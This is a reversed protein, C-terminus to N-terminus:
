LKGDKIIIERKNNSTVNTIRAKYNSNIRSALLNHTDLHRITDYLCNGLNSGILDLEMITTDSTNKKMQYM